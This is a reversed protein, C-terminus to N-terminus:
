NNQGKLREYEAFEKDADSVMGKKKYALGLNYHVNAVNPEISAVKRFEKIAADYMGKKGYEIGKENIKKIDADNVTEEKKGESVKNESVIPSYAPLVPPSESKEAVTTSKDTTKQAISKHRASTKKQVTKAALKKQTVTKSKKSTKAVYVKRSLNKYAVELSTERKKLKAQEKELTLQKIRMQAFARNLKDKESSLMNVRGELNQSLAELDDTKQELRSMTQSIGSRSQGLAGNKVRQKQKAYKHMKEAGLATRIGTGTILLAFFIMIGTYTLKFLKGTGM